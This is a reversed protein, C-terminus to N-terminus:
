KNNLIPKGHPCTKPNKLLSNIKSISEKSFAHELKHAEEHILAPDLNLIESLFSEIIRHKRTVSISEQRGKLTLMIKKYSTHVILKGKKLKRLMESVSSKSVNLYKCLDVSNVQSNNEEEEIHFIARLYDERTKDKM